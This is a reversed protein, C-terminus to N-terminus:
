FDVENFMGYSSNHAIFSHSNPGTWLAQYVSAELEDVLAMRLGNPM